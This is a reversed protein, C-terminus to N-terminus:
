RQPQRDIGRRARAAHGGQGRPGQAEKTRSPLQDHAQRQGHTGPDLVRKPQSGVAATATARLEAQAPQCRQGVGAGAFSSAALSSVTVAAAVTAIALPRIIRHM